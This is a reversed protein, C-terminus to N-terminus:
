KLRAVEIRSQANELRSITPQSCLDRGSRPARSCTLAARDKVIM